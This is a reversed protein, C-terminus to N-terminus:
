EITYFNLYPSMEDIYTEIEEDSKCNPKGICKVIELELM